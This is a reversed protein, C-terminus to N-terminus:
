DIQFEIIRKKQVKAVTLILNALVGTKSMPIIHGRM